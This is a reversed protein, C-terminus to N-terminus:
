ALTLINTDAMGAMMGFALERASLDVDLAAQHLLPVAERILDPRHSLFEKLSLLAQERHAIKRTSWLREVIRFPHRSGVVLENLVASDPAESRMLLRLTIAQRVRGGCFIAFGAIVVATAILLWLRWKPLRAPATM